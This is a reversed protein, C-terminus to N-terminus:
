QDAASRPIYEPQHLALAPFADDPPRASRFIRFMALCALVVAAGSLFYVIIPQLIPYYTVSGGNRGVVRDGYHYANDWYAGTSGEKARVLSYRGAQPHVCLHVSSTDCYYGLNTLETSAFGFPEPYIYVHGEKHFRKIFHVQAMFPLVVLAAISLLATPRGSCGAPQVSFRGFSPIRRWWKQQSFSTAFSLLMAMLVPMFIAGVHMGWFASLQKHNNGLSLFRFADIGRDVAWHSLILLFAIGATVTWIPSFSTANTRREVPIQPLIISLDAAPIMYAIKETASTAKAVVMGIAAGHNADWVAAGSYGQEVFTTAKDIADIQIWAASTSGMFKADVNNGMWRDTAVGFVSLRDADISMGTIDALVAIGAGEPADYDLKLLAIDDYPSVGPPHWAVVRAGITPADAVIPFTIAVEVDPEPQHLDLADGDLAVSVVHACTVVLRRTVLIGMGAHSVGDSAMIKAIGANKTALLRDGLRSGQPKSPRYEIM